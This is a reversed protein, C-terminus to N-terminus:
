TNGWLMMQKYSTQKKGELQNNCSIESKIATEIVDFPVPTNLTIYCANNAVKTGYLDKWEEGYKKWASKLYLVPYFKAVFKIDQKQIYALYDAELHDIWGTKIVKNNVMQSVYEILIDPHYKQRKKEQVTKKEKSPVILEVDVGKMDRERGPSRNIITGTGFYNIYLSDIQSLDENAFNVCENFDHIKCKSM